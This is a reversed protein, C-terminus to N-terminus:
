SDRPVAPLFREGPALVCRLNRDGFVQDIRAVPPWYKNERLWALPYAAVAAEYASSAGAPGGTLLDEAPHPANVLPNDDRPWVGSEILEIEDRIRELAECYRDIEAKSESETPEIMVANPLPFSITPAHFGM